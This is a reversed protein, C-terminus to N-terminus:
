EDPSTPVYARGARTRRKMATGEQVLDAEVKGGNLSVVRVGMRGKCGADARLTHDTGRPALLPSYFPDGQTFFKQWQARLRADDEPHDVEKSETRTASEHHYLVTFGDYLVKFGAEGIRLCLDTDNFGIAFKEDFGRVKMFVARRVMMCAATVASYDRVTTLNCNYGPHRKGKALYANAFKMAHDAAGSFGVLVGAHQVRDDGYLLLPGVAGVEPRAALTRLRAIWGPERAEVDNNLFLVYKARGGHTRVALNNMRAYNFVGQYPMITYREALQALYRVTKPDTSEHDIVVIRINEGASTREISDICTRLLDVRNKTPIVILVEGGDDPWDIRYENYRHGDAATAPLGLRTLHRTLAAKTADNVEAQKAHGTSSDHTRWRYLVSPVHAVTRAIELVRLVFDVDASIPLTEDWGALKRAVDTRVCIMHVFYPHSLYYDHSFAPRARVEIVSNIDSTTLAEDSYILEAGTQKAAAALKQIADPEIVDDHDMFAVYHGRAARLGFNTARAIGVNEPSRLVRVRPERRAFAELVERVYPLTSGDDICILEWNESWQGEVSNLAEILWERPTNFVPMLISISISRTRHTVHQSLRRLTAAPLTAGRTLFRTINSNQNIQQPSGRLVLDTGVIRLYIDKNFLTKLPRELLFRFGCRATPLGADKVDGRYLDALGSGIVEGDCIAEVQLPTDPDHLNVVWGGTFPGEVSDFTGMFPPSAPRTYPSNCLNMRTGAVVVEVPMEQDLPVSRPFPISFGSPGDGLGLARIDERMRDTVATAVSRGGVRLELKVRQNPNALNVAWGQATPANTPDAYGVFGCNEATITLLHSLAVGGIRPTVQVPENLPPLQPVEAAFQYHRGGGNAHPLPLAFARCYLVDGSMIDVPIVANGEPAAPGALTFNGEIRADQVSWDGWRLERAAALDFPASLVSRGTEAGMVDLATGLVYAPLPLDFTREPGDATPIAPATGHAVGDVFLVVQTIDPGDGVFRGSALTPTVQLVSSLVASAKVPSQKVRRAVRKSMKRRM